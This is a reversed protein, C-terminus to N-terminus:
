EFPDFFLSQKRLKNFIEQLVKERVDLDESMSALTPRSKDLYYYIVRRSNYSPVLDLIIRNVERMAAERYMLLRGRRSDLEEFRRDMEKVLTVLESLRTEELELEMIQHFDDLIDRHEDEDGAPTSVDEPPGGGEGDVDGPGPPSEGESKSEGEGDAGARGPGAGGGVAEDEEDVVVPVMGTFSMLRSRFTNPGFDIRISFNRTPRYCKRPPGGADSKEEFSEVMGHEELVKLHKMVAQQSVNLEKSLQLPYHVEKVLKQLIKRRTSNELVSLASDLDLEAM